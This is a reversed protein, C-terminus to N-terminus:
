DMGLIDRLGFGRQLPIAGMDPTPAAAPAAPAAPAAAAAGEVPDESASKHVGSVVNIIEKAPINTIKYHNLVANMITTIYNQSTNTATSNKTTKNLIDSVYKKTWDYREKISTTADPVNADSVLAYCHIGHIAAIIVSHPTNKSKQTEDRAVRFFRKTYEPVAKAEDIENIMKLAAYWSIGLINAKSIDTVDKSDESVVLIPEAITHSATANGVIFRGIDENNELNKITRFEYPKNFDM